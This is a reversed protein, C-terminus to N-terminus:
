WNNGLHLQLTILQPRLDLLTQSLTPTSHHCLQHHCTVPSSPDLLGITPDLGSDEFGEDELEEETGVDELMQETEERTLNSLGALGERDTYVTPPSLPSLSRGLVGQCQLQQCLSCPRRLLQSAISAQSGFSAAERDQNWGTLAKWSTCQFNLSNASTGKNLKSEGTGERCCECDVYLLQPPAVVANSYPPFSYGREPPDQFKVPLLSPQAFLDILMWFMAPERTPEMVQSDLPTSSSAAASVEARAAVSPKSSTTTSVPSPPLSLNSVTQIYMRPSRAPSPTRRTQCNHCHPCPLLILLAVSPSPQM